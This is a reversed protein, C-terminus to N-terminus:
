TPRTGVAKLMRCVALAVWHDSGRGKPRNHGTNWLGNAEQHDIFWM